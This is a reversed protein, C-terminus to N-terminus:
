QTTSEAIFVCNEHSECFSEAASCPTGFIQVADCSDFATDEISCGSPIRIQIVEVNRFVYTGISTCTDPIYIITAVTGEFVSEDILVLGRSFHTGTRWFATNRSYDTHDLLSQSQFCVHRTTTSDGFYRIGM